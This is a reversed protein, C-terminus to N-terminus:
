TNPPCWFLNKSSIDLSDLISKMVQTCELWYELNDYMWDPNFYMNKHIVNPVDQFEESNQESLILLRFPKGQCKGSLKTMLDEVQQRSAGGTRVFLIEDCHAITYWFRQSRSTYRKRMRNYVPTMDNLPDDTNEIEHAFSLGTWKSHYIRGHADNYHLLEPNWMDEFGTDIMDAIDSLNTTRTLDFPYAPGDYEMKHLLMRTACRDGLSLIAVRKLESLPSQYAFPLASKPPIKLRSDLGEDSIMMTRFPTDPNITDVYVGSNMGRFANRVEKWMPQVNYEHDSQNIMYVHQEDRKLIALSGDYYLVESIHPAFFYSLPYYEVETSPALNITTKISNNEGINIFFTKVDTSNALYMGSILSTQKQLATKLELWTNLELWSPIMLHEYSLNNIFRLSQDLENFFIQLGHRNEFVKLPKNLPFSQKKKRAEKQNLAFISLDIAEYMLRHGETNPHAPDFYLGQQWRGSGDNLTTFWDLLPVNWSLMRNHTEALLNHHEPTYEHHPYVAGLMPIANLEQTMKILHQLGSEFRQQIAKREHPPCYAFGENGLSLAIIVIDPKERTVVSSFRDITTTVNAGLQSFNVLQHGYKQHLTEKLREAWGRLLWASCGLAVSSGLVLIKLGNRSQPYITQPVPKEWYGYPYPQLYGIAGDSVIITANQAEPEHPLWRNQEGLSEWQVTGDDLLRIYKYEIKDSSESLPIDIEAWWLPYKVDSTYLYICKSIDWMGLEPTSGVLAISEGMKTEATIEFRYM